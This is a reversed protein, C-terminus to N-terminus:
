CNVQSSVTHHHLPPRDQAPVPTYSRLRLSYVRPMRPWSERCYLTHYFALWHGSYTGNEEQQM